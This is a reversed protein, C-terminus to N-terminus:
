YHKGNMIITDRWQQRWYNLNKNKIYRSKKKYQRQFIVHPDVVDIVLAKHDKTRLIRGVAQTINM